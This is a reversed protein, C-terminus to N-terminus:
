QAEPRARQPSPPKSAQTAPPKTYGEHAPPLCDNSHLTRIQTFAGLNQPKEKQFVSCKQNRKLFKFPSLEHGSKM